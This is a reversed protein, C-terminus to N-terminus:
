RRNFLRRLIYSRAVSLGTFIATIQVNEGFTFAAGYLPYVILQAGLTVALGVVITNTVAEALSHRRTQSM